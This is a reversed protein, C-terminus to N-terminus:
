LGPPSSAPAADQATAASARLAFYRTKLATNKNIPDHAEDPAVGGNIACSNLVAFMNILHRIRADNGEARSAPADLAAKVRNLHAREEGIGAETLAVDLQARMAAPDVRHLAVIAQEDLPFLRGYQNLYLLEFALAHGFTCYSCSRLLSIYFCLLHTRLGGFAALTREYRPMNRVFWLLAGLAGLESVIKVMLRPRFGWLRKGVGELLGQAAREFVTAM